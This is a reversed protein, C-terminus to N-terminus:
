GRCSAATSQAQIDGHGMGLVIAPCPMTGPLRFLGQQMATFEGISSTMISVRRCASGCHHKSQYVVVFGELLKNRVASLRTSSCCPVTCTYAQMEQGTVSRTYM